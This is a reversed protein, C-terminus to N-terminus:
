KQCTKCYFSSRGGIVMKEITKGCLPCPKGEKGYIKFNAQFYGGEGSANLFDSITSGGCSIAWHLTTLIAEHLRQWQPSTLTGVQKKPHIGALFLTENAYINGIGTVVRNDMIFNKVAGKKGRALKQLYGATFASDFPEPGLSSFITKELQEAATHCFLQISGFRRPDHFRLEIGNDLEFFIHDHKRKAANRDFIGLNGTMGLHCVLIHSEVQILVYRARRSVSTVTKGTLEAQATEVPFPHRLPLGSYQVSRITRSVLHPILGRCVVEVEPLEPM